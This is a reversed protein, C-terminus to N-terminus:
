IEEFMSVIKIDFGKYNPKFDLLKKFLSPDVNECYTQPILIGNPIKADNQHQTVNLIISIILTELSKLRKRM